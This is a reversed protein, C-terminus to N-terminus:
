YTTSVWVLLLFRTGEMVVEMNNVLGHVVDLTQAAATRSEEVTLRDLRSLVAEIDKEGLLQKAYRETAGHAMRMKKEPLICRSFRGQNIQKTALALVSLLEIMIKVLTETMAPTPAIETYVKLRRLFNEICELVDVLADYSERM